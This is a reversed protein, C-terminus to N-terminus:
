LLLPLFLFTSPRPLPFSLFLFLFFSCSCVLQHHRKDRHSLPLADAANAPTGPEIVPQPTQSKKRKQWLKVELKGEGKGKRKRERGRGKREEEEGKSRENASLIEVRRMKDRLSPLSNTRLFVTPVSMSPHQTVRTTFAALWLVICAELDDVRSKRATAFAFSRRYYRPFEACRVSVSLTAKKCVKWSDYPFVKRSVLKFIILSPLTPEGVICFSRHPLCKWSFLFEAEAWTILMPCFSHRALDCQCETQRWIQLSILQCWCRQSWDFDSYWRQRNVRWVLTVHRM